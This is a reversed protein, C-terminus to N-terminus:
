PGGRLDLAYALRIPFDETALFLAPLDGAPAGLIPLAVSTIGSLTVSDQTPIAPGVLEPRM